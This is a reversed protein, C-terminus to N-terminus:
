VKSSFPLKVKTAVSKAPLVDWSVTVISLISLTAGSASTSYEVVEGILVSTTAVITALSSTVYVFTSSKGSVM